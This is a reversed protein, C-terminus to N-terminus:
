KKVDLFPAVGAEELQKLAAKLGQLQFDIQPNRVSGLGIYEYWCDGFIKSTDSNHELFRTWEEESSWCGAAEDLFERKILPSVDDQEEVHRRIEKEAVESDWVTRDKSYGSLGRLKGALYGADCRSFFRLDANPGYVGYMAEYLDGTVILIGRTCMYDAYYTSGGKRDRWELREVECGLESTKWYRAVHNKFPEYTM